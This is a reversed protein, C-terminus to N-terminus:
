SHSVRLPRCTPAPRKENWSLDGRAHTPIRSAAADKPGSPLARRIITWATWQIVAGHTRSRWGARLSVSSVSARKHWRQRFPKPDPRQTPREPAMRRRLDPPEGDVPGTRWTPAYGLAGLPRQQARWPL